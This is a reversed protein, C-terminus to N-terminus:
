FIKDGNLWKVYDFSKEFERFGDLDRVSYEGMAGTKAYRKLWYTVGFQPKPTATFVIARKCEVKQMKLIDEDKLGNDDTIFYLNDFDIRKARENWKDLAEEKTKFHNFHIIIDKLQGVPYAGDTYKNNPPLFELESALYEKLNYAFKVFDPSYIWLNITPSMFKLGLNNYILGGICTSCM